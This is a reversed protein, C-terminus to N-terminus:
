KLYIKFRKLKKLIQNEILFYHKGELNKKRKNHYYDYKKNSKKEDFGWFNVNKNAFYLLLLTIMGSSFEFNDTNKM